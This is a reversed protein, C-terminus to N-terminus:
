GTKRHARRRKTTKKGPHWVEDSVFLNFLDHAIDTARAIIQDREAIIRDRDELEAALQQIRAEVSDPAPVGSVGEQTHTDSAQDWTHCILDRRLQDYDPSIGYVLSEVSCKVGTAIKLINDLRLHKYRGSEWDGLTGPSM